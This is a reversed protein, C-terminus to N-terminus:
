NINSTFIDFYLNYKIAITYNGYFRIKIINHKLNRFTNVKVNQIKLWGEDFSYILIMKM